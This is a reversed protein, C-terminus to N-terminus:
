IEMYRALDTDSAEKLWQHQLELKMLLKIWTSRECESPLFRTTAQLLVDLEQRTFSSVQTPMNDIEM